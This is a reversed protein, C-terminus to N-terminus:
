WPSRTAQIAGTRSILIVGFSCSRAFIVLYYFYSCCLLLSPTFHTSYSVKNENQDFKYVGKMGIAIRIPRHGARRGTMNM